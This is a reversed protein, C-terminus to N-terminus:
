ELAGKAKKREEESIFNNDYYILGPLFVAVHEKFSSDACPNGEMNLAVLKKFRQM